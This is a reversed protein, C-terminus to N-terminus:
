GKATLVNYELHVFQNFIKKEHGVIHYLFHFSFLYPLYTVGVLADKYTNVHHKVRSTLRSCLTSICCLDQPMDIKSKRDAHM